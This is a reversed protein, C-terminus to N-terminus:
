WSRSRSAMPICPPPSNLGDMSSPMDIDMFPIRISPEAKLLAIAENANAAEFVEFGKEMLQDAIDMRILAEDEVVLVSIKNLSLQMEGFVGSATALLTVLGVVTAVTGRGALRVRLTAEFLDASQSGMLESVQASLALRGIM